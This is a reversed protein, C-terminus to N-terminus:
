WPYGKVCREPTKECDVGSEYLAHREPTFKGAECASLLCLLLLSFIIKM